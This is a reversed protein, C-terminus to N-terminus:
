SSQTYINGNKTELNQKGPSNIAMPINQNGTSRDQGSTKYRHPINIGLRHPTSQYANWDSILLNHKPENPNIEYIRKVDFPSDQDRLRSSTSVYTTTRNRSTKDQGSTWTSASCEIGNGFQLDNIPFRELQLYTHKPKPAQPKIKDLRKHREPIKM